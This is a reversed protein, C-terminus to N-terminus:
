RGPTPATLNYASLRWRRPEVHFASDYETLVVWGANALGALASEAEPPLGLFATVGTRIAAGHSVVIATRPAEPLGEEPSSEVSTAEDLRDAVAHLAARMRDAVQHPTERGEVLEHRGALLHAHEEPHAASYEALTLGARNVGVDYERLRPDHEVPLGTSAAVHDATQAARALDSSVLLCADYSALAAAAGKAQVQGVEDLEVDIHGQARQELNWATQGHRLVVIRRM